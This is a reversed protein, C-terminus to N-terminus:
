WVLLSSVRVGLDVPQVYERLRGAGPVSRGVGVVRARTCRTTLAMGLREDLM